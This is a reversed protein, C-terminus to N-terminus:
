AAALVAKHRTVFIRDRHGVQRKHVTRHKLPGRSQRALRDRQFQQCRQPQDALALEDVRQGELRQQAAQQAPEVLQGEGGRALAQVQGEAFKHVRRAADPDRPVLRAPEVGGAVAAAGPAGRGDAPEDTGDGEHAVERREERPQDPALDRVHALVRRLAVAPVAQRTRQGWLRRYRALAPAVTLRLTKEALNRQLLADSRPGGADQRCLSAPLIGATGLPAVDFLTGQNRVLPAAELGGVGTALLCRGLGAALVAAPTRRAPAALVAAVFREFDGAWREHTRPAVARRATDGFCARKAPDLALEEMRAALAGPDAAPVIYGARGHPLRHRIDGATETCIVPLGAAMAEEVVLGHPDGLTPFVLADALAYCAPLARPQVFGAFTIDPLERAMARYREEDVGDGVVLLSAARHRSRVIRYADFLDDLGKGLWLRGVYLFVCGHLGLEARWQERTARDTGDQAAYHAIDISQTVAHVRAAPLGYRGAMRAGDPGPALAGDAARFLMHKGAEKWWARASWSDYNPLARLAARSATAHAALIGLAFAARDYLSVLLDPRVHRLEALPLRTRYGAYPRAPVFRARFAWERTDVDWSRDLEREANFWAEFAINDRAALTNFRAVVHPSPINQWYVVRPKSAPMVSEQYQALGVGIALAPPM